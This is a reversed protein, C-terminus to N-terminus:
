ISLIIKKPHLGGGPKLVPKNERDIWQRRHKVDYYHIWKKDGNVFRDFFFPVQCQRMLLSECSTFVFNNPHDETSLFLLPQVRTLKMNQM